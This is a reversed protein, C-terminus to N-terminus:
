SVHRLREPHSPAEAELTLDFALGGEPRVRPQLTAGFERAIALSIPLGLGLGEGAPKTSFFPDFVRALTPPPLGPGNDAVTLVVRGGERRSRVAVEAGPRGKVADLANGVLNVLIQSLRIPEFAVRAAEPDLDTTVRAGSARIRPALIALSESLTGALDVGVKEPASRRAFGRLQGTIKGLRDVLTTIRGLNAEAEETRGQRLFAGANEALGRMATLPQNLEHTIGAAMQGLTAMKAAQVLEDQAARLEGEARRREEIEGALKANAASLDATRAAVKAELERQAAELATRAARSERARRLHQRWYLGILGLVVLALTMGLRASRGALAMPAADAFLLLRWGYLPLAKEEAILRAKPAVDSNTVLPVGGAEAEGLRLRAFDEREYQRTRAIAKRAEAEVPRTARFKFAPDSALFVIGNADTVLVRDTGERWVAELADLTVKTAVAGRVQGDIVVPAAIFYGPIGTLTGVAYFRGIRGQMAETFYPRYNFDVGVYSQSTNWNSAAITLGSPKLLYLVTAGAAGNLTELYGNVTAILAPDEPHELLRRVNLDLAAAAPLYGFREIAGELSRAYIEARQRADGALSAGVRTEAIEGAALVAFLTAGTLAALFFARLTATFPVPM